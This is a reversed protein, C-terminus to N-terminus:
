FLSNKNYSILDIPSMFSIIFIHCNKPYNKGYPRYIYQASLRGIVPFKHTYKAGIEVFRHKISSFGDFTEENFKSKAFGYGSNCFLKIFNNNEFNKEANLSTQLWPYGKSGCGLAINSWYRSTWTDRFTIEKGLYSIFECELRSYHPTSINELSTKSHYRLNLGTAFSFTDGIIDNYWLRQGLISIEDLFFSKKINYGITGEISGCLRTSPSFSCNMSILSDDQDLKTKEIVGSHQFLYTGQTAIQKYISFWPLHELAGLFSSYLFSIIVIIRFNLM